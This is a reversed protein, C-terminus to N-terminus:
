KENKIELMKKEIMGVDILDQPRGANKKMAVLDKLSVVPIKFGGVSMNIVNISKIDMTILIDVQRLPNKYDVFSWAILNRTQIYEKRFQIIDHARVPIRSQLGISKLAEEAKQFTALDLKLVLDVDVTARVIEHFALAYGGVVAYKIKAKDFAQHLDYILM